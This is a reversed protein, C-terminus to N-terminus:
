TLFPEVPLDPNWRYMEQRARLYSDNAIPNDIAREGVQRSESETLTVKLASVIKRAIEEQIGFVDDTTGSYKESWVPSDSGAEVLEVTIRLATGARRVSGTVVHTVGLEREIRYRDALAASLRAASDSM